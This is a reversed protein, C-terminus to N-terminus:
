KSPMSLCDHGAITQQPPRISKWPARIFRVQTRRPLVVFAPLNENVTSLGYTVWAGIAPDGGFQNGTNLHYLATPHNVSEAQAGRYICLDDVCQAVHPFLESVPIASQGNATLSGRPPQAPLHGARGGDRGKADTHEGGTRREDSADTQSFRGQM